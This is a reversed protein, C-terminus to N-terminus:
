HNFFNVYDYSTGYLECLKEIDPQKPFTIGKEWNRLTSPAIGLSDAAQKQTLGANVRAAKLNTKPM